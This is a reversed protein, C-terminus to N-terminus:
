LELYYGQTREFFTDRPSPPTKPRNKKQEELWKKKKERSLALNLGVFEFFRPAPDSIDFGEEKLAELVSERPISLTIYDKGVFEMSTEYGGELCELQLEDIETGEEIQFSDLCISVDMGLYIEVSFWHAESTTTFQIHKIDCPLGTEMYDVLEPCFIDYASSNGRIFDVESPMSLHKGDALETEYTAVLNEVEEREGDVAAQKEKAERLTERKRDERKEKLDYYNEVDSGDYSRETDGDDDAFECDEDHFDECECDSEGREPKEELDSIDEDFEEPDLERGELYHNFGMRRYWDPLDRMSTRQRKKQHHSINQASPARKHKVM